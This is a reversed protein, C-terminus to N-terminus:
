VNQFFTFRVIFHIFADETISMKYPVDDFNPWKSKWEKYKEQDIELNEQLYKRWGEFLLKM